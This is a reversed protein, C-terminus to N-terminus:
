EEGKTSTSLIYSIIEAESRGSMTHLVEQISEYLRKAYATHFEKAANRGLRTLTYRSIHKSVTITVLDKLVLQRIGRSILRTRTPLETSAFRHTGNMDYRGVNLTAANVSLTDIAALYDISVPADIAKMLLLIRLMAEYETDLISAKHMISVM